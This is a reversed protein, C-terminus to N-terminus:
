GVSGSARLAAIDAAAHGAERLIDDTHAGLAPARRPAVQPAGAMSIPNAITRPVDPDGTAIFTGNAALQPDDPLDRLGPLTGFTIGAAALRPRWDALDRTAFQADLIAMLEPVRQARAARTAFRPDDILGPLDIAQCFGAWLREERVIVLSLWRGDRARYANALANKAYQRGRRPEPYAGLLAAQAFIGNSWIGNHLLNTAVQGGRGTRERTFLALMIAGFLTMATPHDGQAPLTLSPAGDAVRMADVIGSRGFYTTVDYGPQDAEPGTEGYGSLSAYILRANVPAVDDYRLRLRARVPFPYNTILVDARAILRDLVARGDARKLDLAISRKNRNDLAWSYDVDCKPMGAGDGMRRLPDGDLPEVKIVDAGFDALVTAAAPGAIFSAVDLVRVGALPPTDGGTDATDSM